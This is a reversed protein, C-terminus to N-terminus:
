HYMSCRSGRPTWASYVLHDLCATVGPLDGTRDGDSDTFPRPYIQYIVGTRWWDDDKAPCTHASATAPETGATTM